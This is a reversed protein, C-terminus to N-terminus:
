RADSKLLLVYTSSSIKPIFEACKPKLEKEWKEQTTLIADYPEFAELARKCGVKVVGQMQGMKASFWPTNAYHSIATCHHTRSPILINLGFEIDETELVPVIRLPKEMQNLRTLFDASAADLYIPQPSPLRPPLLRGANRYFLFTDPTQLLLLAVSGTIFLQRRKADALRHFIEEGALVTVIVACMHFYGRSFHLPQLAHNLFRDHVLFILIVFFSAGFFIVTRNRAFFSRARPHLLLFIPVFFVFGTMSLISSLQISFPHSFFQEVVSAHEASLKSLGVNYALGVASTAVVGALFRTADRESDFKFYLNLIAVSFFITSWLLATFPHTWWLMFLIFVAWTYRRRLYAVVAAFSLLHYFSETSLLPLRALHPIWYFYSQEVYFFAASFKGLVNEYIEPFRHPSLFDYYMSYIWSVGGSVALGWALFFRSIVSATITAILLGLLLMSASAYFYRQINDVEEIPLGTVRSLAAFLDTYLHTYIARPPTAWAFANSNVLWHGEEVMKRANGQYIVDDYTIIGSPIYNPPTRQIRDMDLYLLGLLPLCLPLWWSKQVVSRIKM